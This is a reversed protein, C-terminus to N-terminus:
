YGIIKYEIYWFPYIYALKAGQEYGLFPREVWLKFACERNMHRATQYVTM